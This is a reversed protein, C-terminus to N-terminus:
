NKETWIPYSQLQQAELDIEHMNIGKVGSSDYTKYYYIGKEANCCSSYVTYEYNGDSLKVCGRVQEVSGLIHFCQSVSENETGDCKSNCKVFAAKVFRSVSSADGPLGIGGMGRSYVQLTLEKAFTNMPQSTSLNMYNSLNWLQIPFPPNNTLVGVPNEYIRLGKKRPEVVIARDRDAIMWHMPTSRLEKSYHAKVVNTSKLLNVAEETNNCQGLVWPIMEFPAINYCGSKESQYYANGPFLLGAMCLGKENMGDYYLPYEERVYAMGIMAHHCEMDPEKRFKMCYKRPTITVAEEYSYDLDLNRGFYFTKTKYSIATCM